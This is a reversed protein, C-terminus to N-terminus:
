GRGIKPPLSDTVRKGADLHAHITCVMSRYRHALLVIITASTLSSLQLVIFVIDRRHLALAGVVLSSALWM